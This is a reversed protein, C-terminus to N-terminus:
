RPMDHVGLVVDDHRDVDAAGLHSGPQHCGTALQDIAGLYRDVVGEVVHLQEVREGVDHVVHDLPGGLVMMEPREHDAHTRRTRQFAIDVGDRRQVGRRPAAERQTLVEDVAEAQGHEAVEVRLRQCQGLAPEAGRLARRVEHRHHHRGPHTAADHQVALQEVAGRAVGPVDAMHDDLGVTPPAPAPRAPAELGLRRAPGDLRDGTARGGFRGVLDHLAGAVQDAAGHRRHAVQEVEIEDDHATRDGQAEAGREEVRCLRHEVAVGLEVEATPRADGRGAQAVAPREDTGAGHPQASQTAGTAGGM